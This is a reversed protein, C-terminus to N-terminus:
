AGPDADRTQQPTRMVDNVAHPPRGCPVRLPMLALKVIMLFRGRMPLSSPASARAIAGRDGGTVGARHASRRVTHFFGAHRPHAPIREHRVDSALWQLLATRPAFLRSAGQRRGEFTRAAGKMLMSKAVHSGSRRHSHSRQRVAATPWNRTSRVTRNLRGSRRRADAAPGSSM